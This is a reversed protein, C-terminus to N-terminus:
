TLARNIVKRRSEERQCTKSELSSLSDGAPSGARVDQLVSKKRGVEALGEAPCKAQNQRTCLGSHSTEGNETARAGRHFAKRKRTPSPSEDKGGGWWSGREHVISCWNHARRDISQVGEIGVTYDISPVVECQLCNKKISLRPRRLVEAGSMCPSREASLHKSHVTETRRLRKERNKQTKAVSTKKNEDVITAAAM